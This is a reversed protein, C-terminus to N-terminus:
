ASISFGYHIALGADGPQHIMVVARAVAARHRVRVRAHWAAIRPTAVDDRHIELGFRSLISDAGHAEFPHPTREAQRRRRNEGLPDTAIMWRKFLNQGHRRLLHDVQQAAVDRLSPGAARQEREPRELPRHLRDLHIPLELRRPMRLILNALQPALNRRLPLPRPHHHPLPSFLCCSRLNEAMFDDRFVSGFLPGSGRGSFGPSARSTSFPSATGAGFTWSTVIVPVSNVHIQGFAPWGSKPVTIMSYTGRSSHM